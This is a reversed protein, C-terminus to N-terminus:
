MADYRMVHGAGTYSYCTSRAPKSTHLAADRLLKSTHLATDHTAIRLLRDRRTPVTLAANVLFFLSHSIVIRM